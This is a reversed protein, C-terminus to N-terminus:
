RPPEKTMPLKMRAVVGRPENPMLDLEARPGHLLVLRERANSLGVGTGSSGFDIGPGTDAVDVVLLDGEVSARVDIRGGSASRELGHKIANELMTGIVTPPLQVDLLAEPAQVSWALREGMRMGMIALYSRALQLERGLTSTGERMAPVAARLYDILNGIMADAAQADRRVLEQVNALSNYLFHPEIQAQLVQLQGSLLERELRVLREREAMQARQRQWRWEASFQFSLVAGCAAAAAAGAPWRALLEHVSLWAGPPADLWAAAGAATFASVSIAALVALGLGWPGLAPGRRSRVAALLLWAACWAAWLLWLSRQLEAPLGASWALAAVLVFAPWGWRARRWRFDDLLHGLAPRDTRSV